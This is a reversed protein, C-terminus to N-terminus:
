AQLLMDVKQGWDSRGVANLHLTTTQFWQLDVQDRPLTSDDTEYLAKAQETFAASGGTAEPTVFEEAGESASLATSASQDGSGHPPKKYYYPFWPVIPDPPPPAGNPFYPPSPNNPLYGTPPPYFGPPPPYSGTQSPPTITAPPSNGTGTPPPYCPYPCEQATTTAPSSFILSIFLTISLFQHNPISAM